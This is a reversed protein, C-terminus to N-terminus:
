IHQLRAIRSVAKPSAGVAARFHRELASQSMASRRAIAAIPARGESRRILNVAAEIQASLSTGNRPRIRSSLFREVAVFQRKISHEDALINQIHEIQQGPLVDELPVTRNYLLDVRDHLIAPAGVETFRVVILSSHAAHEVIRTRRQLGSLIANPLVESHLSVRGSQRLVLTLTTEPLLVQLRPQESRVSVIERVYRRLVGAPRYVFHRMGSMAKKSSPNPYSSESVRQKFGNPLSQKPAGALLRYLEWGVMIRPQPTFEGREDARTSPKLPDMGIQKLRSSVAM